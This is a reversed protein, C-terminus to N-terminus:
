VCQLGNLRAGEGVCVAFREDTSGGGVCVRFREAMSGRRLVCEVGKQRAGDERCV